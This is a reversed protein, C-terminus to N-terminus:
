KNGSILQVFGSGKFLKGDYSQAKYIYYYTGDSVTEGNKARGDWEENIGDAEFLLIGWRDYISYMLSSIGATTFYFHDNKGDGNPSFVNPIFISDKIETDVLICSSTDGLCNADNKVTLLICYKGPKVFTHSPNQLVSSDNSGSLSDSFNWLWSTAGNSKDTFQVNTNSPINGSPSVIYGATLTPVNVLITASTTTIGSSTCNRDLSGTVTYTTTVIPNAIVSAGTTSNLGTGPTWTYTSAGSASLMVAGGHCIITDPTVLLGSCSISFKALLTTMDEGGSFTGNFYAGNGPNKTPYLNTSADGSVFVNTGDSCIYSGDSESDSGYYTAWSLASTIANLQLIFVDLSENGFSDQFYGCEPSKTPFDTSGTAGCVWVNSGDSQISYGIDGGLIGSGGYYTAWILEGTNAKFRLVFANGIGIGGLAKQNYAGNLAYTPFDTSYTQGTVWVNNGDSSISCGVDGGGNIFNYISSGGYYTAWIRGGTNANFEIIFTNEAGVGGLASQNYAGARAQLPFNASQTEGTVWVSTGDSSISNGFDGGNGGYYTSWVLSSNSCNFESVFANGVGGGIVRQIYAGGPFSTPFDTSQTGGTVWVNKGDSNISNGQDSMSGGFYTAWILAGTNVDFQLIFANSYGSSTRLTNQNYAGFLTRLPFDSSSTSGTLWVNKSDSHISYGIDDSSGGYYTAWILKGCTTFQLIVINQYPGGANKQLYQGSTTTDTPFGITAAYGTVWINAGDTNIAYIDEQTNGGYFTAWILTPDIILTDSKNYKDLKFGIENGHIVYHTIIRQKKAGTYSIPLCETISGMPTSIKVSGDMQISPKDTWKYRLKILSPDAGPHVIFDYKLGGANKFDKNSVDKEKDENSNRFAECKRFGSDEIGLESDQNKRYLVWDIGPYVNKITIKQYSHVNTVGSPCHALYYDTRDESEGEKTINEKRIDAGVLQMDARCYHISMDSKEEHIRAGAVKTPGSLQPKISKDIKAFVYSLGTTTIYLDMGKESTKFLVENVVRGQLDDIHGKNETMRFGEGDHIWNQVKTELAPGDGRILNDKAALVFVPTLLWFFTIGAAILIILRIKM